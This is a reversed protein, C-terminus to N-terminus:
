ICFLESISKYKIRLPVVEVVGSWVCEKRSVAAPCIECGTLWERRARVLCKLVFVCWGGSGEGRGGVGEVGGQRSAGDSVWVCGCREAGANGCVQEHRSPGVGDRM